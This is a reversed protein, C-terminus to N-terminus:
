PEWSGYRYTEPDWPGLCPWHSHCPQQAEPVLSVAGHALFDQALLIVLHELFGRPADLKSGRHGSRSGGIAHGRVLWAGAPPVGHSRQFVAGVGGGPDSGVPHRRIDLRGALRAPVDPLVHLAERAVDHSASAVDGAVHQLVGLGRPVRQHHPERVEGEPAVPAVGVEISSLSVEPRNIGCELGGLKGGSGGVGEKQRV